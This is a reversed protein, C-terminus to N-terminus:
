KLKVHCIDKTNWVHEQLKLDKSFWQCLIGQFFNDSKFRTVVKKVVMMIPKDPIDHKITVLEGPLFYQKDKTEM